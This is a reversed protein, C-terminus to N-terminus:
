HIICETRYTRLVGVFGKNWPAERIAPYLASNKLMNM